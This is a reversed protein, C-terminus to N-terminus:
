FGPFHTHYTWKDLLTQNSPSGEQSYLKNGKKQMIKFIINLIINSTLACTYVASHSITFFAAISARLFIQHTLWKCKHIQDIQIHSQWHVAWFWFFLHLMNVQSCLKFWFPSVSKGFQLDKREEIHTQIDPFYSHWSPRGLLYFLWSSQEWFPLDSVLLPATSFLKTTYSTIKSLIQLPLDRNSEEHEM